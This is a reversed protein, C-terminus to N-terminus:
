LRRGTFSVNCTGLQLNCTAPQLNLLLAPTAHPFPGMFDAFCANNAIESTSAAPHARWAARRSL